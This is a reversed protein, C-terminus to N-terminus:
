KRWTRPAFLVLLPFIELRGLLMALSMFLKSCYSFGAFSGHPGIVSTMGPGINSLCSLAATFSTAIDFGDFSIVFTFSILLLMYLAFFVM